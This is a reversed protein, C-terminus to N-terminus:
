TAEIEFGKKLLALLFTAADEENPFTCLLTGFRHGKGSNNWNVSGQNSECLKATEGATEDATRPLKVRVYTTSM